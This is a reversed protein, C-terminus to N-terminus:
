GLLVGVGLPMLTVLLDCLISNYSCTYGNAPATCCQEMGVSCSCGQPSQVVGSSLHRMESKQRWINWLYAIHYSDLLYM